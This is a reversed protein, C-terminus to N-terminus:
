PGALLFLVVSSALSLGLVTLGLRRRGHITYWLSFGTVSICLLSASALDIALSWSGSTAKGRHLDTLWGAMGHSEHRVETQGDSRQITAECQRGPSKFVIHLSEEQEDFTDVLGTAGFQGRLHEVVRLRDPGELHAVPTSGEEARVHPNDLGFWDEHNLMFGTLSFFLMLWIGLLGLVLHVYRTWKCFLRYSRTM